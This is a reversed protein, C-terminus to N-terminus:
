PSEDRTDNRPVRSAGHGLNLVVDHTQGNREVTLTAQTSDPISQFLAQGSWRNQELVSTGNLAVVIDGRQLGAAEFAAGDNGPLLRFGRAHGSENMVAASARVVNFINPPNDATAAESESPGGGAAVETQHRGSEGSSPKALPILLAEPTGDRDLIIRDSYVAYLIAGGVSAGVKYFSSRGGDSLIAGGQKPNHRALTGTLTLNSVSVPVKNPDESVRPREPTGFLHAAVIAQATAREHSGAAVLRPPREGSVQQETPATRSLLVLQYAVRVGEATVLITLALTAISPLSPLARRIKTHAIQVAARLM